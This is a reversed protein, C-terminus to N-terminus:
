RPRQQGAEARRIIRSSVVLAVGVVGCVWAWWDGWRTRLTIGELPQVDEILLGDAGVDLRAVVKGRSDIFGSIGTLAARAFWRRNEAARLRVQAFHQDPAWSFGYWGDNTVTALLQAGRRVQAAPLDPFVVEFCVAVGLPVRAPLLEPTRGPTFSGVERVLSETFAFRAWAPVFEGFPVLHVKDYRQPSVGEPTVLFASNAFGGSPTSAVSNVVIEIELDKAMRELAASYSPDADVRFPLAGEPWLVLDAGRISAAATMAWVRDAIEGARSPDWKEELSTGPQLVAVRMPSGVPQPLPAAVLAAALAAAAVVLAV